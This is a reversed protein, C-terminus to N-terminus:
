MLYQSNMKRFHLFEMGLCFIFDKSIKWPKDTQLQAQIHEACGIFAERTQSGYPASDDWIFGREYLKKMVRDIDTCNFLYSCAFSFVGKSKIMNDQVIEGLLSEFSMRAEPFSFIRETHKIAYYNAIFESWLIYGSALYGDNNEDEPTFGPKLEPTTGSGYIDIFHEGDMETKACYIHMFEHFMNRRMNTKTMSTDIFVVVASKERGIIANAFVNDALDQKQSENVIREPAYKERLEMFKEVIKERPAFDIVIDDETFPVDPMTKLFYTLTEAACSKLEQLTM